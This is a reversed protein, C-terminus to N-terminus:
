RRTFVGFLFGLGLAILMASLPYQRITDEVQNATEMAKDQVLGLQNNAIRGVTSALSQLEARIGAIQDALEYADLLTDRTTAGGKTTTETRSM